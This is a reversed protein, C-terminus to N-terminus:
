ERMERWRQWFDPFSKAVCGEGHIKVGPVRLGAVAFCMAIRHDEYTAIEAGHLGAGGKGYIIMRDHEEVAEVGLKRLESVMVALRDCEKIRLHSINSIVTTGQAFAAAVALTPAVDPMNGMDAE